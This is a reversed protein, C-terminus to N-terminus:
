AALLVTLVSLAEKAEKMIEKYGKAIVKEYQVCLHGVGNYFYNGVTFINHEIAKKAEEAMFSLALDSTTKGKWYQHVKRLKSKTDEAIYFPDASRHAVTEFEEELWEFSYEPFTQCSRPAKTNSGIILEDPRITIPLEECIKKFAKARRSIMPEGETEMYSQTILVAREGEIQPMKKYLHEILKLIRSSKEVEFNQFM